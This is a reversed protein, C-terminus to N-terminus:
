SCIDTFRAWLKAQTDPNMNEWGQANGPNNTLATDLGRDCAKGPPSSPAALAASVASLALAIVMALVVLMNKRM